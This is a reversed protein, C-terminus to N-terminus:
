FDNGSSLLLMFKTPARTASCCLTTTPIWVSGLQIGARGPSTECILSPNRRAGPSLRAIFACTRGPIYTEPRMEVTWYTSAGFLEAIESFYNGSEQIENKFEAVPETPRNTESPQIFQKFARLLEDQRRLLGRNLLERMEQADEIVDSTARDTRKYLAAKKLILVVIRKEDIEIRHVNATHRPDTYKQIFVTLNRKISHHPSNKRSAKSLAQSTM